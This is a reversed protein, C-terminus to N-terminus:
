RANFARDLTNMDVSLAESIRRLTKLTPEQTGAELRNVQPQSTGIKTALEAQSLGANLRLAKLSGEKAFGIAALSKRGDALHEKLGSEALESLFESFPRSGECHVLPKPWEFNCRVVDGFEHDTVIVDSAKRTEILPRTTFESDITIQKLAPSSSSTKKM